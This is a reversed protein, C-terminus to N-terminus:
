LESCCFASSYSRSFSNLSFMTSDILTPMRAAPRSSRTSLQFVCISLSVPMERSSATPRVDQLDTESRLEALLEVFQAAFFADVVDILHRQLRSPLWRASSAARSGRVAGVSELQRLGVAGVRSDM